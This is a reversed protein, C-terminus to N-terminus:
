ATRETTESPFELTFTAGLGPGDSHVSLSGGLERAALAGSHLGFGHGEKRTTFGHGFIRSLNEPAIGVGNDIVSIKVMENGNLAVRLRLRKDSQRSEDMAYKANRILNVLIQLVKHKDVLVPPVPSYERIVQVGHREMAGANMRLADEVLEKVELKERVASVKAYSQQMAVIEKIHDINGSLSSLERLMEQQEAVLHDALQALYEPLQKGKPDNAFFGPLDGAQAQMLAAAKALNSVRSNRMKEAILNSSINVSNLVNGVNHLVSTAVEAMGAMRSTTLLQRHVEELKGEAEKIATIDKSIGFTGIIAGAKNRLPMKSTLVWALRGDKRVEKEIKGIVPNGTRIIQQEDEFAPRAHEEDFFDFDNKGLIQDLRGMGFQGCLSKSCTIFRSQFDKFYIHDPSNDLLARLLDREYALEAKTQERTIGLAIGDAISALERLIEESFPERSFMAMVGVVIDGVILPYGAFATIGERKVWAPDNLGPDEAVNNTLRPKREEAILEVKFKWEPARQPANSMEINTGASAQLELANTERNLTWIRAMALDLHRAISEACKGLIARLDAQRTLAVGLEAGLAALRLREALTEEARKREANERQLDRTREEVKKELNERASDLASDRQQIQSLMENFGDILVGLEDQTKKVARVSYNGGRAVAHTAEVMQLIPESIVRQLRNSLLLAVLLTLFFVGVAILAHEELKAYLAQLDSELYVVGILDGKFNIPDFFALRGGEFILGSRQFKPPSFIQGHSARNYQAFVKGNPLFICAGIINPEVRLASLTEEAATPSNFDLAAASNDGVIESLLKLNRVMEKRFTVVEYAAFAACALLLAVITTLMIILMQKRKLSAKQFFKM